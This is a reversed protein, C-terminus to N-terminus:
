TPTRGSQLKSCHLRRIVTCVKRAYESQVCATREPSVIHGARSNLSREAVFNNYVILPHLQKTCQQHRTNHVMMMICHDNNQPLFDSSPASRLWDFHQRVDLYTHQFSILRAYSNLRESQPKYCQLHAPSVSRYKM